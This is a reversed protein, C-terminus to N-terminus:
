FFSPPVSNSAAASVFGPTTSSEKSCLGPPVTSCLDLDETFAPSFFMSSESTALTVTSLAAVVPFSSAESSFIKCTQAATVSLMSTPTLSYLPATQTSYTPIAIGSFSPVEHSKYSLEEKGSNFLAGQSANRFISYFNSLYLYFHKM